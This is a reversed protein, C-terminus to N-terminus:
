FSAIPQESDEFVNELLMTKQEKRMNDISEQQHAKWKPYLCQFLIFAAALPIAAPWCLAFVGMTVTPILTYVALTIYFNNRAIEYEAKLIAQEQNLVRNRLMPTLDLALKKERMSSFEGGVLNLAMAFTCMFYGPIAIAPILTAAIFGLAFFATAFVSYLYTDNKAQWNIDLQKLNNFVIAYEPSNKYLGALDGELLHKQEKYEEFAFYWGPLMWLLDFFMFAVTIVMANNATIRCLTNFNTIFNIGTWVIDNGLVYYRKKFERWMRTESALLREEPTCARSHKIFLALHFILRL